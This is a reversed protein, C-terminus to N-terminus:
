PQPEAAALLAAANALDQADNINLFPDVPRDDFCARAVGQSEAWRGIRREGAALATRIPERLRAPWLACTPHVRGQSEAVAFGDTAEGAMLLNPVLDCPVFPTDVAVTALHTAGLPAMWELGALVGAMPGLREGSEDPLVPGVFDAFRARDGNASLALLEVQPSFRGVMRELLTIGGLLLGAKDVGGFRRGEGGALILGFIRVEALPAPAAM